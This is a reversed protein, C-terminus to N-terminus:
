FFVITSYIYVRTCMYTHTHTHVNEENWFHLTNYLQIIYQSYQGEIIIFHSVCFFCCIHDKCCIMM